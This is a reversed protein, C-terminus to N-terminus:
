AENLLENMINDLRDNADKALRVCGASSLMGSSAVFAGEPIKGFLLLTAGVLSIATFAASSALATNFSYRAQRLREHGIELELPQCSDPTSNPMSNPQTM